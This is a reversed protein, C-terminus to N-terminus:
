LRDTREPGCGGSKPELVSVPATYMINEIPLGKLDAAPITRVENFCELLAKKVGTPREWADWDYLFYPSHLDRVLIKSYRGSRLRNVMVDINEYIGNIPQDGISIARDRALYSHKLYVWNGVDLLVRDVPLDAFEDEIDGIYRYVDSLDRGKLFRAERADLTPVQHLATFITFVGAVIFLPRSLTEAVTKGSRDSSWLLTLSALTMVMGVTVGPGFHYLVAWGAASSLAESGILLIWVVILPGTKRIDSYKVLAWAGALGVAIEPWARIFHDVSRIISMNLGASFISIKSRGGGMIEFTWFLFNEGWILYCTGVAALILASTIVFFAALRKYNRPDHLLLFLFMVASWSILFQKTLYGLAPFIAMIVLNKRSPSAAYRLVAWLALMSVVMALSDAHLAHSFPNVRPATATLFLTFFSFALWTKHIRVTKDPYAVRAFLRVSSTAIVTAVVIYFLHIARWAQISDSKGILWSIAYTLLPAGPTYILSNNHTPSTYIPVGTRIKIIDGVFNTEAWMLIDAPLTVFPMISIFYFATLAISLILCIIPAIGEFSPKGTSETATRKTFIKMM